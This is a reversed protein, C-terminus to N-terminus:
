GFLLPTYGGVAVEVGRQAERILQQEAEVVDFDVLDDEVRTRGKAVEDEVQGVINAAVLDFEAVVAEFLVRAALVQELQEHVPVRPGAREKADEATELVADFYAGVVDEVREDGVYM